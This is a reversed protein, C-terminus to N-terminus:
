WWLRGKWRLTSGRSTRNGKGGFSFKKCENVIKKSKKDSGEVKKLVGAM